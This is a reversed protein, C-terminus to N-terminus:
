FYCHNMKYVQEGPRKIASEIGSNRRTRGSFYKFIPGSKDEDCQLCDNLSGDPKNNPAGTIWAWICVRFCEKRTNVANDLWIQACQESFGVDMICSRAWRESIISRIACKRVPDTLNKELYVALDPLTSCAGCKGQHTVIFGASEAAEIDQFDRLEYKFRQDNDYRIACVQIKNKLTESIEKESEATQNTYPNPSLDPWRNVQSKTKFAEIAETRSCPWPDAAKSVSLYLLAVLYMMAVM